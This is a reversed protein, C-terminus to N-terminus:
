LYWAAQRGAVASVMWWLKSENAILARYNNRDLGGMTIISDDM